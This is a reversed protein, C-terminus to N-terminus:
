SGAQEPAKGEKELQEREVKQREYAKKMEPTIKASSDPFKQQPLITDFAGFNWAILVGGALLCVIAIALKVKNGDVETKPKGKAKPQVQAM